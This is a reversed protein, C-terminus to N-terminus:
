SLQCNPQSIDKFFLIMIATPIMFESKLPPDMNEQNVHALNLEIYSTAIFNSMNQLFVLVAIWKKEERKGVRMFILLKSTTGICGICVLYVSNVGIIFWGLWWRCWLIIDLLWSKLCRFFSRCWYGNNWWIIIIVGRRLEQFFTIYCEWCSIELYKRAISWAIFFIVYFSNTKIPWIIFTNICHSPMKLPCVSKSCDFIRATCINQRFYLAPVEKM